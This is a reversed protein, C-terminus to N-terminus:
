KGGRRAAIMAEDEEERSSLNSHRREKNVRQNM